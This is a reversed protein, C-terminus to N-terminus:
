PALRLAFSVRYYRVDINTTVSLAYRLKLDPKTPDPEPCIVIGKVGQGDTCLKEKVWGMYRQVQGVVQDSPRGKKLEIVVFSNSKLEVALIDILGGDDTSYQQGDNGDEDEYIKLEGKFIADFNRVIFDELHKEFYFDYPNKIEEPDVGPVSPVGFGERFNRFQEESLESITRMPFVVTPFVKHRPQEEWSVDLYNKWHHDPNKEPVYYASKIVRGVAELIKRGRRALVFDGPGIEHYFAWYWKTRGTQGARTNDSYKSAVFVSLEDRTMRSADGLAEWGISICHNALDFQWVKDFQEPPNVGTPAIVWYRPPRAVDVAIATSVAGVGPLEKSKKPLNAMVVFNVIEVKLCLDKETCLTL